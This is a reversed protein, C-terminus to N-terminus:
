ELEIQRRRTKSKSPATQQNIRELAIKLVEQILEDREDSLLLESYLKKFVHNGGAKVEYEYDRLQLEIILNMNFPTPAEGVFGELQLNMSIQQPTDHRQKLIYELQSKWDNGQSGINSYLSFKSSFFLTRLHETKEDFKLFLPKWCLEFLRDLHEWSRKQVRGKKNKQDRALLELAKEVDSTEEISEGKAAKIGLELSWKLEKLLYETFPGIDGADANRLAALYNKKDNSKIIIPIYNLRMLAYNVLLRAVRGNGDDFPHILIFDYHLKALLLGLSPLPGNLSKNLWLILEGMKQPVDMPAAFEFLEGTATRVNNPLNKYEGPIIQKKSPQGSSTIAEKWFPEKLILKNLDRIDAESLDRKDQAMKRIHAIAVDHAKMEEYERLTHDGTTQDHLFLVETEGYTLTNGEIHNSNYNWELRLKQWLREDDTKKLPQLTDWENKLLKIQIITETENM